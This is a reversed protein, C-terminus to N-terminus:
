AVLQLEGRRLLEADSGAVGPRQREDEVALREADEALVTLRARPDDPGSRLRFGSRAGASCNDTSSGAGSSAGSTASASRMWDVMSSRPRVSAVASDHVPPSTPCM